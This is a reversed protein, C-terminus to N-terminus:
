YDKGRNDIWGLTAIEVLTTTSNVRRRIQGSTNTIIMAAWADGSGLSATRATVFPFGAAQDTQSLSSLWLNSNANTADFVDGNFIGIVSIATPVAVLTLTDATTHGPTAASESIPVVLDFRDGTQYHGIINKSGDLKIAGIRRWRTYNAPMTPTTASLSMLFDTVGTDPREIVYTYYWTSAAGGTTGTDLMGGATGLTWSATTKTYTTTVAMYLVNTSDSAAGSTFTQTTAGGPASHQFGAIYNILAGKLATFTGALPTTQGISVNDITGATAPSITVVGSGTPNLVVNKNAPSLAVADTATLTTSKVALPTTVGLAVNDITGATAPNVTVVGTGTPSLVVNKSAPSLSVADTATLTTSKVALPTTVGLAVNDITGATAPNVTVVGTGTPSLVVAANAPSLAVAGTATLTTSKVALPTTVGLTVNDISGATAPNVTVLGTGTPSIVVNKNPPSLAVAGNGTLTAASNFTVPGTFTGGAIPMWPPVSGSIGLNAQATTQAAAGESAIESLNNQVLLEGVTTTM